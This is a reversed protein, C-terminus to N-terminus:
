APRHDHKARRLPPGARRDNAAQWDLSRKARMLHREWQGARVGLLERREFRPHPAVLWLRQEVFDTRERALERTQCRETLAAHSRVRMGISSPHENWKADRIEPVVGNLNGRRRRHPAFRRTLHTLEGAIHED